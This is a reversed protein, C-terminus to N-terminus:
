GHPDHEGGGTIATEQLGLKTALEARARSLWSRVTAESTGIESAIESTTMGLVTRMVLARRHNAALARVAAAVDLHGVGPGDSSTAERATSHRFRTRRRRWSSIALNQLVRNTWAAPNDLQSVKDWNRWVRLFTEQALDQAEQADGTFAYAQRLLSRRHEEFFADFEDGPIPGEM